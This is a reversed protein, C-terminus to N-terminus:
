QDTIEEGPHLYRVRAVLRGLRLEDGNRLVRLEKPHIRQGNIFTGNSSGLDYIQLAHDDAIYRLAMHLRSVGLDAANVDALDVDPTMANNETSRGVVLEHGRLQPRVELAQRADRIILTLVSEASFYQDDFLESTATAFTRTDASSRHGELLQGCAYCFVDNARNKKQCNVCVVWQEDAAAEQQEFPRYVVAPPQGPEPEFRTAEQGTPQQDSKNKSGYSQWFNDDEDDADHHWADQTGQQRQWADAQQPPPVPPQDPKTPPTPQVPFDVVPPRPKLPKPGSKGAANQSSSPPQKATDGAGRMEWTRLQNALTQKDSRTLPDVFIKLARLAEKTELGNNRMRTYEDFIEDIISM